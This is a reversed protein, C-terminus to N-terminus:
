SGMEGGRASVPASRALIAAWSRCLRPPYRGALTPKRAWRGRPHGPGPPLLVKGDLIENQHNGPCLRHLGRLTEM